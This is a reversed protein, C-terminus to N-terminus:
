CCGTFIDMNMWLLFRSICTMISTSGSPDAFTFIQAPEPQFKQVSDKRCYYFEKEFLQFLLVLLIGILALVFLTSRDDSGNDPPTCMTDWLGHMASM